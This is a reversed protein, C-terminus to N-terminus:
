GHDNISQEVLDHIDYITTADAFRGFDIWVEFYNELDAIATLLDLSDLGLEELNEIDTDVGAANYLISNIEYKQEETLM